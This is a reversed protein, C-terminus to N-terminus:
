EDILGELYSNRAPPRPIPPLLEGPRSDSKMKIRKACEPGIGAAISEPVTLRVGCRGCRGEHYVAWGRPLLPVDYRSGIKLYADLERWTAEGPADPRLGMQYSGTPEGCANVNPTYTGTNTYDAHNDPGYLCDVFYRSSKEAWRVRFTRRLAPQDKETPLLNVVTLYANGSLIFRRAELPSLRGRLENGPKMGLRTELELATEYDGDRLARRFKELTTSIM